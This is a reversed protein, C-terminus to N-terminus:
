KDVTDTHYIRKSSKNWDSLFSGGGMEVGCSPAKTVDRSLIWFGRKLWLM